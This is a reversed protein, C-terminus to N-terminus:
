LPLDFTEASYDNLKVEKIQFFHEVSYGFDNSMTNWAISVVGDIGKSETYDEFRRPGYLLNITGNAFELSKECFEEHQEKVRQIAAYANDYSDFIGLVDHGDMYLDDNEMNNWFYTVLFVTNM